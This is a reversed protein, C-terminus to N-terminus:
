IHMEEDAKHYVLLYINFYAVRSLQSVTCYYAKNWKAHNVRPSLSYGELQAYNLQCCCTEIKICNVDHTM